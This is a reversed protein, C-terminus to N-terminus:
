EFIYFTYDQNKSFLQKNLVSELDTNCIMKGIEKMNLEMLMYILVTEM